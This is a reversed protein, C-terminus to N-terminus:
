QKCNFITQVLNCGHSLPFEGTPQRCLSATDSFMSRVRLKDLDEARYGIKHDSLLPMRGNLDVLDENNIVSSGARRLSSRLIGFGPSAALSYIDVAERLFFSIFM